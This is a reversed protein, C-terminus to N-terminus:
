GADFFMGLLMGVWNEEQLKKLGGSGGEGGDMKGGVMDGRVAMSKVIECGERACVEKGEMKSAFLGQAEVGHGAVKLVAAWREGIKPFEFEPVLGRGQCLEYFQKVHETSRPGGIPVAVISGNSSTAASSSSFTQRVSNRTAPVPPASEQARSTEWEDLTQAGLAKLADASIGLLIPRQANGNSAPRLPNTPFDDLAM